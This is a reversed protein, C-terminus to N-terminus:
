LQRPASPAAVFMCLFCRFRIDETAKQSVAAMEEVEILACSTLIASALSVTHLHIATRFSYDRFEGGEREPEAFGASQLRETHAQLAQGPLSM